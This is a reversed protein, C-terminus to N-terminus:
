YDADSTLGKVIAVSASAGIRSAGHKIMAEADQTSRIGGSAKVGMRDGVVRRMLAVDAITAGGSSFGTSTKVFDAGANQALVCAVVKEEDTLLATEIIVKVTVRQGSPHSAHRASAVVARIDREVDDYRTSKLFGVNIVMDIESAGNRVAQETERSKVESTTAGLPFGVVTCVAVPSDKLLEYAVPVYGPNVCVSAFCYRRADDCLARIEGETTEAKLATHDILRALRPALDCASFNGNDSDDARVGFRQAGAGVMRELAIRVSADPSSSSDGYRAQLRRVVENLQQENM